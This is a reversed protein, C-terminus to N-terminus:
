ARSDYVTRRATPSDAPTVSRTSRSIPSFDVRVSEVSSTAPRGEGVLIPSPFSLGSSLVRAENRHSFPLTLPREGCRSAGIQREYHANRGRTRTSRDINFFRFLGRARGPRQVRNGNRLRDAHDIRRENASFGRPEAAHHKVTSGRPRRKRLGAGQTRRIPARRLSGSCGGTDSDARPEGSGSAQEQPSGHEREPGVYRKRGPQLNRGHKHGDDTPHRSEQHRSRAARL